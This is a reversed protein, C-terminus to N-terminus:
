YSGLDYFDQIDKGTKEFNSKDTKVLNVRHGYMDVPTYEPTYAMDNGSKIDKMFKRYRDAKIKM